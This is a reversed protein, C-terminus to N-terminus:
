FEKALFAFLMSLGFYVFDYATSLDINVFVLSFVFQNSTFLM